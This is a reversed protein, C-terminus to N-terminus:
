ALFLAGVNSFNNQSLNLDKLYFTGKLGECIAQLGVDGLGCNQMSLKKLKTNVKLM